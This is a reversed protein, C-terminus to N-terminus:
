LLVIAYNISFCIIKTQLLHALGGPTEAEKLLEMKDGNRFFQRFQVKLDMSIEAQSMGKQALTVIKIKNFNSVSPM